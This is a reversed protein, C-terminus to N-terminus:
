GAPRGVDQPTADRVWHDRTLNAPSTLAESAKAAARAADPSTTVCDNGDADMTMGSFPQLTGYRTSGDPKKADAPPPPGCLVGWSEEAIVRGAEDLKTPRVAGYAYGVLEPSGAQQGELHMQFVMPDGAATVIDTESWVPKGDHQEYSGFRGDDMVVFANVCGPWASLPQATDVQCDPKIEEAWIGPRLRAAGAEDAKTFLPDKTLLVNCGGLLALSALILVLRM